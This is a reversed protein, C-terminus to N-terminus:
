TLHPTDTGLKEQLHQFTQAVSDLGHQSPATGGGGAPLPLGNAPLSHSPSVRTLVGTLLGLSSGHPPGGHVAWILTVLSSSHLQPLVQFRWAGFSSVGKRDRGEPIKYTGDQVQLYQKPAGRGLCGHGRNAAPPLHHEPPVKWCGQLRVVPRAVDRGPPAKWRAQM